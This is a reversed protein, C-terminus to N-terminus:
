RLCAAIVFASRVIGGWQRDYADDTKPKSLVSEM